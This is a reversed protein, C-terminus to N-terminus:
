EDVALSTVMQCLIEGSCIIATEHFKFGPPMAVFSFIKLPPNSEGRNRKFDDTSCSEAFISHTIRFQFYNAM